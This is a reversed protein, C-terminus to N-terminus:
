KLKSAQRFVDDIATSSLGMAAGLSDILSHGRAIFNGYNWQITAVTKSPEPLSAILTDVQAETIGALVLAARFAWLPVESPPPVDTWSWVRTVTTDTIEFSEVLQKGEPVEPPTTDIFARVAAPDVPVDDAVLRVSGDPLIAAKM